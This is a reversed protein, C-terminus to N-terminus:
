SRKKCRPSPPETRNKMIVIYVIVAITIAVLALVLIWVIVSSVERDMEIDESDVAMQFTQINNNTGRHQDNAEFIKDDPDIEISINYIGTEAKWTFTIWLYSGSEITRLMISQEISDDVRIVVTVNRAIAAGINSINANIACLDRNKLAKPSWSVKAGFALDPYNGGTGNTDDDNGSGNIPVLVDVFVLGGESVNGCTFKIYVEYTNTPIADEPIHVSIEFASSACKDIFIESFNTADHNLIVNWSGSPIEAEFSIYDEWNGLNSVNAYFEATGNPYASVREPTVSVSIAHIQRM